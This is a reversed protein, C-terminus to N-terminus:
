KRVYEGKMELTWNDDGNIYSTYIFNCMAILLELIEDDSNSRVASRDITAMKIINNYERWSDADVIKIFGNSVDIIKNTKPNFINTHKIMVGDARKIHCVMLCTETWGRKWFDAIKICNDNICTGGAKPLPKKHDIIFGMTSNM